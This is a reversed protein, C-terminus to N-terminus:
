AAAEAFGVEAFAAAHSHIRPRTRQEGAEASGWKGSLLTVGCSAQIACARSSKAAECTEMQSSSKLRGRM